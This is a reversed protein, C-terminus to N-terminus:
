NFDRIMLWQWVIMQNDLLGQHFTVAFGTVFRTIEKVQFCKLDPSGKVHIPTFFLPYKVDTPDYTSGTAAPLAFNVSIRGTSGPYRTANAASPTATGEMIFTGTEKRHPINPITSLHGYYNDNKILPVTPYETTPLTGGWDVLNQSYSYNTYVGDSNIASHGGMLTSPLRPQHNSILLFSDADLTDPFEEGSGNTVKVPLLAQDANDLDTSASGDYKMLGSVRFYVDSYTSGSTYDGPMYTDQIYGAFWKNGSDYYILLMTGPSFDLSGWTEEDISKDQMNQLGAATIKIVLETAGTATWDLLTSSATGTSTNAVSAAKGVPTNDTTNKFYKWKALTGWGHSLSQDRIVTKLDRLAEGLSAYQGGTSSNIAEANLPKNTGASFLENVWDFIDTTLAM